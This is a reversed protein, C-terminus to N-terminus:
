KMNDQNVEVSVGDARTRSIRSIKEDSVHNQGFFADRGSRRKKREEWVPVCGPEGALVAQRTSRTCDDPWAKKCM